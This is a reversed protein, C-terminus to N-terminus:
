VYLMYIIARGPQAIVRSRPAVSAIVQRLHHERDDILEVQRVVPASATLGHTVANRSSAAKRARTKPGGGQGQVYHAYGWSM